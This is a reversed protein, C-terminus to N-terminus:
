NRLLVAQFAAVQEDVPLRGCGTVMTGALM